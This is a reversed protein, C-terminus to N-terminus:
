SSELCSLCSHDPQLFDIGLLMADQLTAVYEPHKCRYEGIEIEVYALYIALMSAGDCALRVNM